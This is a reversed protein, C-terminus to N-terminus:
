CRLVRKGDPEIAGFLHLATKPILTEMREGWEVAIVGPNDLLEKWFDTDTDKIEDIRYGDIHFLPVDGHYERCYMFTPSVTHERCQLANALGQVFVTKGTGLDAHLVVVGENFGKNILLAALNHTHEECASEYKHLSLRYVREDTIVADM